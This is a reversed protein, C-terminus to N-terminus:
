FAVYMTPISGAVYKLRLLPKSTRTYTPPHEVSIIMAMALIFFHPITKADKPHTLLTFSCKENGKYGIKGSKTM